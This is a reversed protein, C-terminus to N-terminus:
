TPVVRFSEGCGCRDQENPNIFSFGMSLGTRVYDLKAGKLIAATTEDAAVIFGDLQLVLMSTDLADIYDITYSLGSCGTTKVGLKLGLGHGRTALQSRIRAAASDTIELHLITTM